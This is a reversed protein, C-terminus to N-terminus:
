IKTISVKVINFPKVGPVTKKAEWLEIIGEPSLRKQMLDFRNTKKVFAHFATWDEVQPVTATEVRVKATKGAAGTDSKPLTQIVHEKLAKEETEFADVVKQAELRKARLEYLRDAMAGFTKPFKYNIKATAM